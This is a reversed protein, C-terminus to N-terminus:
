GVRQRTLGIKKLVSLFTDCIYHVEEESLFNHFPLGILSENLQETVALFDAGSDDVRRYNIFAPHKHVVPYYWRRVGIGAKALQQCLSNTEISGLSNVRFAAASRFVQPVLRVVQPPTNFSHGSLTQTSCHALLEDLHVLYSQRVRDRRRKIHDLRDMQALGVAAQMESFKYNSGSVAIEGEDFGFNSQSRAQRASRATPLVVVGGEGVGFSKTAHLSYCVTVADAIEQEGLAAAADIIVPLGTDLSFVSWAEANVPLGLAAVPLVANVNFHRIVKAAYAPTLQWSQADVDTFVPTYGSSLIATVTAPFTFSPVLVKSGAPLNLCRLALEIATTGNSCTVVRESVKDLSPFFIDSLRNEFANVLPGFNSYWRNEDIKQLFPLLENTQPLDPVLFPISDRQIERNLPM